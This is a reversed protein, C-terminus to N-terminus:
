WTTGDGLGGSPTGSESVFMSVGLFQSPSGNLVKIGPGPTFGAIWCRQPQLTILAICDQTVSEECTSAQASQLLESNLRAFSKENCRAQVGKSQPAQFWSIQGTGAQCGFVGSSSTVVGYIALGVRCVEARQSEDPGVCGSVPSRSLLSTLLSRSLKPVFVCDSSNALSGDPARMICRIDHVLEQLLGEDLCRAGADLSREWSLLKHRGQEHVPGGDDIPRESVDAHLINRRSSLSPIFLAQDFRGRFGAFVASDPPCKRCLTDLRQSNQLMQTLM